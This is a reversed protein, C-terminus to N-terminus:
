STYRIYISEVKIAEKEFDLLDSETFVDKEVKDVFM